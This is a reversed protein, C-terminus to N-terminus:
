NDGFDACVLIVGSVDLFLVLYVSFYCQRKHIGCGLNVNLNMLTNNKYTLYCVLIVDLM